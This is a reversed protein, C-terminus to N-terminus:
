FITAVARWYSNINTLSDSFIIYIIRRCHSLYSNIISKVQCNGQKMTKSDFLIYKKSKIKFNRLIEYM